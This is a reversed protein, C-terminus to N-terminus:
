KCSKKKHLKLSMLKWQQFINSRFLSQGHLRILSFRTDSVKLWGYVNCSWVWFVTCFLCIFRGQTQCSSINFEKLRHNKNHQWEDMRIQMAVPLLLAGPRDEWANGKRLTLMHAPSPSPFTDMGAHTPMWATQHWGLLPLLSLCLHSVCSKLPLISKHQALNVAYSHGWLSGGTCTDLAADPQWCLLCPGPPCAAVPAKYGLLEGKIFIKKLCWQCPTHILM